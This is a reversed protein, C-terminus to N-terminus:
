DVCVADYYVMGYVYIRREVINFFILRCVYVCLYMNGDWPCKTSIDFHKNKEHQIALVDQPGGHTKYEVLQSQLHDAKGKYRQSQQRSNRLKRKLEANEGQLQVIQSGQDDLHDVVMPVIADVGVHTFALIDWHPPPPPVRAPTNKATMSSMLFAFRKGLRFENVM